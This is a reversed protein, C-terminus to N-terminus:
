SFEVNEIVLLTFGAISLWDDDGRVVDYQQVGSACRSM